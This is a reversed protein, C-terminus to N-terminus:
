CRHTGGGVGRTRKRGLYDGDLGEKQEAPGTLQGAVLSGGTLLGVQEAGLSCTKHGAGAVM